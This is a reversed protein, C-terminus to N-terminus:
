KIVMEFLSNQSALFNSKLFRWGYNQDTVKVRFKLSDLNSNPLSIVKFNIGSTPNLGFGIVSTIVKVGTKPFPESLAYVYDEGKQHTTPDNNIQAQIHGIYSKIIGIVTQRPYHNLPCDTFCSVILLTTIIYKIM